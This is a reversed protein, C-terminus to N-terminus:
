TIEKMQRHPRASDGNGEKISANSTSIQILSIAKSFHQM